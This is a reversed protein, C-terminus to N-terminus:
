SSQKNNINHWPRCVITRAYGKELAVTIGMLMLRPAARTIGACYPYIGSFQHEPIKYKAMFLSVFM